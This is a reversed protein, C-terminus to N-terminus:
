LVDAADVASISEELDEDTAVELVWIPEYGMYICAAKNYGFENDLVDFNPDKIALTVYNTQQYDTTLYTVEKLVAKGTFAGNEHEKMLLLDGVQYGRDDKRIEFTKIGDAVPEFYKPLIKLEHVTM